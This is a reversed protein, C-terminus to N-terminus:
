GFWGVVDAILETQGFANAFNVAGDGGLKVFVLNAVTLGPTYNLSSATPMTEGSPWVTLFSQASPQDITVNLVVGTAGSAPVGAQGAIPLTLTRNTVRGGAGIGNRTDLVRAPSLAHHQGLASASFCGVVDAILDVTGFANYMSVMGGAGVKAIVLNPVTQGPVYNLSSALPFAEGTPWVTLYSVASPQDVTVNLVVADVGDAPVGSGAVGTVRVDLTADQGLRARPAGVGNRTDLLRYPSLPLLRDNPSDRFYGVIDAIAHVEGSESWVNVKGGSGPKIVVLNPVTRGPSWNLSSAVPRSEGKPWITFYSASTGGTATVNMAVATVGSAPVGGIGLAQIEVTTGAGMPVRRGGINNRTDLVRFPNLPVYDGALNPPAPSEPLEPGPGSRFLELGAYPAGLITAPDGGLWTRLVSAYMTRFDVTAGLQDWRGKNALSPYTGHLGGAVQSGILFAVSATGHDTGGSANAWPTRGFESVVMVAVRSRYADDLNTFLLRLADDLEALRAPHMAQQNSHSDFDGWGVDLIRLGLNANILRAALVMKSGIKSGPLPQGFLPDVTRAVTLQSAEVQAIADHWPGRGAGTASFGRIAEYLRLDQATARTGFGGGAEAIGTARRVNGILHLPVSTGITAARFADDTPFGDLWRGLWGSTPTGGAASGHMWIAMSSFHSLNPNAYGVGQVVAVQGDDYLQKLFRLNPHFGVNGDIALVQGSPVALGGRYAAYSPDAYPVLTNLGDNGGYMVVVILVGDHPGIPPAAWADRLEAPVLAPVLAADAASLVAGGGLGLAVAQLFRRRSLGAPDTDPVSLRSLVEATSMDDRRASM